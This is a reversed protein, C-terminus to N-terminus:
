KWTVGRTIQSVECQTIGYMLALERQYYNGTSYLKKIEDAQAKNIKNYKPRNRAQTERSAWRVNNPEYDKDGDIRDLTWGLGPYSPSLDNHFNLYRDWRTCVKIGRGGYYPYDESKPNNCRNRMVLWLRHLPTRKGNVHSLGHMERIAKPM